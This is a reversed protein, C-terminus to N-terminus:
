WINLKQKKNICMENSGYSRRYSTKKTYGIKDDAPTKEVSRKKTVDALGSTSVGISMSTLGVGPGQYLYEKEEETLPRNKYLTNFPVEYRFLLDTKEYDATGGRRNMDNHVKWVEKYGVIYGEDDVDYEEGNYTYVDDAIIGYKEISYVKGGISVKTFFGLSDKGYVNYTIGDCTITLTGNGYTYSANNLNPAKFNITPIIDPPTDDKEDIVDSFDWEEYQPLLNGFEDYNDENEWVETETTNVSSGGMSSALVGQALTLSIAMFLLINRINKYHM